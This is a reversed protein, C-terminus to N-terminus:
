RRRRRGHARSPGAAHPRPRGGADRSPDDPRGSRTRGGRRPGGLGEAALARARAVQDAADEGRGSELLLSANQLTISLGSLTHALVDHLDRAIREREASAAARERESTLAQERALMLEAAEIRARRERVGLGGQYAAAIGGLALLYSWWASDTRWCFVCVAIASFALLSREWARPLEARPLMLAAAFPVVIASGDPLLMTLAGGAFVLLVTGVRSARTTDEGDLRHSPPVLVAAVAVAGLLVLIAVVEATSPQRRAVPGSLVWIVLVAVAIFRTVYITLSRM